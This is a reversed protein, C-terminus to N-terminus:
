GTQFSALSLPRGQYPSALPGAGAERPERILSLSCLLCVEVFLSLRSSGAVCRELLEEAWAANHEEDELLTALATCWADVSSAVAAALQGKDGAYVRELEALLIMWEPRCAVEAGLVEKVRSLSRQM